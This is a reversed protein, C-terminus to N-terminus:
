AAIHAVAPCDAMIPFFLRSYFYDADESFRAKGGNQLCYGEISELGVGQSAGHVNKSKKNKIAVLVYEGIAKFRLEIEFSSDGHRELNQVLNAMVSHVGINMKVRYLQINQEPVIKVKLNRRSFYDSFYAYFDKGSLEQSKDGPNESRMVKALDIAAEAEQRLMNVKELIEPSSSNECILQIQHLHNMLDHILIQDKTLKKM